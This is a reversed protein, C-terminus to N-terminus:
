RIDGHCPQPIGAFSCDEWFFSVCKLSIIACSGVKSWGAFYNFFLTNTFTYNIFHDQRPDPPLRLALRGGTGEKEQPTDWVGLGRSLGRNPDCRFILKGVSPFKGSSQVVRSCTPCNRLVIGQHRCGSSAVLARALAKMKFMGVHASHLKDLARGKLSHFSKLRQLYM